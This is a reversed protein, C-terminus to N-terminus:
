EAIIHIMSAIMAAATPRDGWPKREGKSTPVGLLEALEFRL